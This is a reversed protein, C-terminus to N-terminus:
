PKTRTQRQSRAELGFEATTRDSEIHGLAAQLQRTLEKCGPGLHGTVKVDIRGDPGITVDIDRPM